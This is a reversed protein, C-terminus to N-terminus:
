FIFFLFVIIVAIVIILTNVENNVNGSYVTIAFDHNDNPLVTRAYSPGDGPARKERNNAQHVPFDDFIREVRTHTVSELQRRSILLKNSDYSAEICLIFISCLIATTKMILKKIGTIIQLLKKFVNIKIIIAAFM